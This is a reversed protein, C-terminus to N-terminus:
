KENFKMNSLHTNKTIAQTLEKWLIKTYKEFVQKWAKQIDPQIKEWKKTLTISTKRWELKKDLFGQLILKDVFRTITSSDMNMAKSIEWTSLGNKENVLMLLFAYSSSLGIRNFETESIRNINRALSNTSFFLCNEFYEDLKALKTM